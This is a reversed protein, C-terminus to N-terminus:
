FLAAFNLVLLLLLIKPESNRALRKIEILHIILEQTLTTTGFLKSVSPKLSILISVFNWFLLGMM